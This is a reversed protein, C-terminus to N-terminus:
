QNNEDLSFDAFAYDQKDVIIHYSPLPKPTPQPAPEQDTPSASTAGSPKPTPTPRVAQYGLTMILEDDEAGDLGNDDYALVYFDCLSDSVFVASLMSAYYMDVIGFNQGDESVYLVYYDAGIVANWHIQHENELFEVNLSKSNLELWESGPLPLVDEVNPIFILERSLTPLPTVTPKVDNDIDTDEQRTTNEVAVVLVNNDMEVHSSSASLADSHIRIVIFVVLFCLFVSLLAVAVLICRSKKM